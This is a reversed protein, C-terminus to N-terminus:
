DVAKLSNSELDGLGKVPKAFKLTLKAASIGSYTQGLGQIVEAPRVVQGDTLVMRGDSTFWVAKAIVYFGAKENAIKVQAAALDEARFLKKLTQDDARAVGTALVFVGVLVIRQIV